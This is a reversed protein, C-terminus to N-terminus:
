NSRMMVRAHENIGIVGFFTAVLRHVERFQIQCGQAQLSAVWNLISGAASFDVRILNACSVVLRLSGNRSRELADLATTAEGLIAGSLEAVAAQVPELGMPITAAPAFGPSGRVSAEDDPAGDNQAHLAGAITATHFQCRADQWAPPSVEFTVCYDLAVLEFEDQLQMIRLADLRLKWGAQGADRERVDRTPSCGSAILRQQM